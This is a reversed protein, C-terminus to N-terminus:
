GRAEPSRPSSPSVKFLPSASGMEYVEQRIQPFGNNKADPLALEGRQGSPNASEGVIYTAEM